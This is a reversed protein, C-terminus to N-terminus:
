TYSRCDICHFYDNSSRYHYLESTVSGCLDVTAVGANPLFMLVDGSFDPADASVHLLVLLKTIPTM